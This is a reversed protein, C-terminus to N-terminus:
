LRLPKQFEPARQLSSSSQQCLLNRQPNCQAFCQGLLPVVISGKRRDRASRRQSPALNETLQEEVEDTHESKSEELKEAFPALGLSICIRGHVPGLAFGFLVSLLALSFQTSQM